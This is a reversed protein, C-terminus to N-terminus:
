AHYKHYAQRFPASFIFALCPVLIAGPLAHWDANIHGDVLLDEEFAPRLNIDTDFRSNVFLCVPILFGAITGTYYDDGLSVALDIDINEVKVRGWLRRVLNWSRDGLKETRSIDYLRLLWNYAEGSEEGGDLKRRIVKRGGSEWGVLGFLYEVRLKVDLRNHVNGRLEVRLPIILLLVVLAVVCLVIVAATL